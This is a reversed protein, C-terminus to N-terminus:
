GPYPEQRQPSALPHREVVGKQGSDSSLRGGDDERVARACGQKKGARGRRPEAHRDLVKAM